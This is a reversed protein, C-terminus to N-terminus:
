KETPGIYHTAMKLNIKFKTFDASVEWFTNFLHLEGCCLQGLSPMNPRYRMWVYMCVYLLDPHNSTPNWILNTYIDVIHAINTRSQNVKSWSCRCSLHGFLKTVCVYENVYNSVASYCISVM